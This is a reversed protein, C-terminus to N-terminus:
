EARALPQAENTCARARRSDPEGVATFFSALTRHAALSDGCWGRKEEQPSDTPIDMVYNAIATSRAAAVVANFRDALTTPDAAPPRPPSPKIGPRHHLARFIGAMMPSLCAHLRM